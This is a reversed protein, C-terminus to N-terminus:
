TSICWHLGAGAHVVGALRGAFTRLQELEGGGAVPAAVVATMLQAVLAMCAGPATAELRALADGADAAAAVAAPKDTTNASATASQLAPLLVHRLTL